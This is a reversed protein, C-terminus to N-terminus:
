SHEECATKMLKLLDSTRGAYVRKQPNAERKLSELKTMGRTSNKTNYYAGDALAVFVQAPRAIDNAEKIFNHLDKYQNDQSGGSEKTYKHSAYFILGEYKWKFDLSKCKSSGGQEKMKRDSMINGGVIRVANTALQEFESIGPIQEIACGAVKEHFRQKGPDTIFAVAYGSDNRIKKLVEESSIGQERATDDVKKYNIPLNRMNGSGVVKDAGHRLEQHPDTPLGGTNGMGMFSGSIMEVYNRKELAILKEYDPGVWNDWNTVKSYDGYRTRDYTIM